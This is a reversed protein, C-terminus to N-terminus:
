AYSIDTAVLLLVGPTERTAQDGLVCLLYNFDLYTLEYGQSTLRSRVPPEWKYPNRPPSATCSSSVTMM